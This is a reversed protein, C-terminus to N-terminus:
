KIIIRKTKGDKMKVINIGKQPSSLRLGDITYYAAFKDKDATEIVSIDTTTDVTVTCVAVFGGDVTTATVVSIGNDLAIITGNNSVTCVNEKSSSWRVEKNSADEPLVMAQLHATEGINTLVLESYDLIIGTVPQLVTVECEDKVDENEASTVTIVATGAGKGTIIGDKSVTAVDENSSTWVVDKNDANDPLIRANIQIINGVNITADHRELQVDTIPQLVKVQCSATYNGDVSTATVTCSGKKVGTIIGNETVTAIDNNSCSWTVLGDSTELPLTHATLQLQENINIEATKDMTVGTTHDYVTVDCTDSLGNSTEAIIQAKGASVATVNGSKDVKVIADNSSQWSVSKDLTNEPQVVATLTKVDNIYLVVSEADLKINEAEVCEIINMQSFCSRKYNETTGKPVYITGGTFLPSFPTEIIEPNTHSTYLIFKQLYRKKGTISLLTKPLVMELTGDSNTNTNDSHALYGMDINEMGDGFSVYRIKVGVNDHSGFANFSQINCNIILTDIVTGAFEMSGTGVLTEPLILKSIHNLKYFTYDGLKNNEKVSYNYGMSSYYVDGGAVINAQSLDITGNLKLNLNLERIFKIDTGNIYGTIKLNELTQQDKYEIKSSLWGPTQNDVTLSTHQAYATFGILMVIILLFLIRKM